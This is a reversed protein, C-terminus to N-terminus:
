HLTPEEQEPDALEEDSTEESEDEPVEEPAIPPPDFLRRFIGPTLASLPNVFVAPSSREGTVSYSLAFIGEGKKGVLIDGIIPTKGLLSNLQYLPAVAGKLDVDGGEGIAVAGSATIGVSPGTARMEDLTLVGDTYDFEGYANSLDIGEGNLLDVLGVLSGAAFIRALLPAEVLRLNRAEIHGSLGTEGPESLSIQMVGEGGDVSTLGFVGRLLTGISGSQATITRLPGEDEGTLSMNMTLPTGTQDFATFNLAQLREADRRLDLAAVNYEVGERLSMRDIRATMSLGHGWGMPDKEREADRGGGASGDVLTEMLAGVNLHKGIANITLEGAPNRRASVSLDAAGDFYVRPLHIRQVSGDSGFLLNGTLSVGDGELSINSIDIEEASLNIKIVGKANAGMPKRWGLADLTIAADSFDAYVDVSKLAGLEGTADAQFKVPGRLYQRSSIGFLDGTSPDITGSASFKSPGDQDFFNQRWSFMIPADALEAQATVTMSRPKLDVEGKGGVFILDGFLGAIEMAEFVAKGNYRYEDAAVDRKNPRMIEFDVSADGKFQRPHLEIKSLLKLPEQDLLELIDESKGAASLRIYTPQWKPIFAPFDAEGSNISIDGVRARDVTMLFSNGRLVGHGSARTLPTMRKIFYAKADRVDFSVNMTEDPMLGDEGVAGAPLDVVAHINEITAAEIRGEVWDRAGLAVMVPWIRLLRPQDLAGEITINAKIEPSQAAGAADRVVSMAFNGLVGIDLLSLDIENLVIKQDSVRYAGVVAAKTIPLPEPLAGPLNVVIDSGVLDFTVGQPDRVDDDFLIAVSGRLKGSSGGADFNFEEVEFQKTSPDFTVDWKISNINQRGGGILLTGENIAASFRSALVDGKTTFTIEASGTVPADIIAAQDGYFTTLIDGVPFNAGDIGVSLIGSEETYLAEAQISALAGGMDIKGTVSANLGFNTRNISVTADKSVWSRGSAVDTFTIAAHVIQAHVFASKLIRGDFIMDLKDFRSKRERRHAGPIEIRSDANRIIHFRAGEVTISKPGIEGAFIAGADFSLVADAASATENQQPDMVRVNTIRLVYEGEGERILNVTEIKTSYREPLQSSIALEFSPKLLSLSVPGQELRWYFFAAGAAGVALTIALIEVIILSAKVAHKKM